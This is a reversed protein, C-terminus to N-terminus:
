RGIRGEIMRSAEDRSLKSAEEEPLGLQKLFKLQHPMALGAELRAMYRGIIRSALGFTTINTREIKHRELFGIQGPTLPRKDRDTQPVYESIAKDGIMLGWELPNITRAQRRAHKKAEKELSKLFDRSAKEANEGTLEGSLKMRKKVEVSDTFLDYADLLDIRDSMFLPDLILLHPKHSRAIAERREEATECEDLIGPLVRTGRYIGQIYFARSITARYWGICDIEPFDVGYNFIIANCLCTGPGSRVFEETNEDADLADGSVVFSKLGRRNLASSLMGACEVSPLFCMSKKDGAHEVHLDALKEIVPILAESLDSSKFDTGNVTGGTRYRRLDIQLPINKQIPAVLWGDEVAQRYSYDVSKHQYLQGLNKTEGIDPTATFGAIRAKPEYSGDSPQLWMEELSEAGYHFYNLIRIWMPALSRHCEDPVIYQFHTDSFGTLRNVRGLTAVCAVVIPAFPSSHEGAMEIEVDLGTVSRIRDATQRTLRDRDELILTRHGRSWWLSALASFVQTKGVGGPAVALVRSYSQLDADITDVWEQQKGRLAIRPASPQWTSLDLDISM